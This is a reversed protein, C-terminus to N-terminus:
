GKPFLIAAPNARIKGDVSTNFGKFINIGIGGPLTFVGPNEQTDPPSAYKGPGTGLQGMVSAAINYEVAKQRTLGSENVYNKALIMGLQQLLGPAQPRTSGFIREPGPKDFTSTGSPGYTVDNTGIGAVTNPSPEKDYYNATWGIPDIGPEIVGTYYEVREYALTMRNQLIKGGESQNVSDHQWDTIKPNVLTYQTFNGQHLVYLNIANLFPVTDRMGYSYDTTGFKTDKFAARSVTGDSYYNRYYNVWLNHTIESNDDHLEITVPNYTLKTQVITKRNYQNLTENAITFKPLDVKKALLGVDLWDNTAWADDSVADRNIDLEVFYLFGLKPARAYNSDAYLKSAHQYDKMIPGYGKNSLFNNFAANSM